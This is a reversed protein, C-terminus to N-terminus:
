FHGLECIKDDEMQFHNNTLINNVVYKHDDGQFVGIQSIIIILSKVHNVFKNYDYSIVIILLYKLNWLFLFWKLWKLINENKLVIHHINNQCLFFKTLMVDYSIFISIEKANSKKLNQDIMIHLFMTSIRWLLSMTSIWIHFGQFITCHSL